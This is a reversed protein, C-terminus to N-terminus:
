CTMLVFKAKKTQTYLSSIDAPSLYGKILSLKLVRSFHASLRLERNFLIRTSAKM